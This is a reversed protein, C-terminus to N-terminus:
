WSNMASGSRTMKETARDIASRANFTLADRMPGGPGKSCFESMHAAGCHSCSVQSEPCQARPHDGRGCNFCPYYGSDNRIYSDSYGGRAGGRGPRSPYRGGKGKGKGKGKGPARPQYNSSYSQANFATSVLPQTSREEAKVQVLLDNYYASFSTHDKYRIM